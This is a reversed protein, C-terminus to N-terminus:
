FADATAGARREGGHGHGHSFSMVLLLIAVAVLNRLTPEPWHLEGAKHFWAPDSIFVIVAILLRLWFPSALFWGLLVCGWFGLSGAGIADGFDLVNWAVAVFAPAVLLGLVVLLVIAAVGATLLVGVGLIGLLARM